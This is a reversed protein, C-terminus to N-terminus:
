FAPEENARLPLTFDYVDVEISCGATGDQKVYAQTKARGAITIKGGKKLFRMAVDSRTGWVACEIWTTEEKGTRVALSFSALQNAGVQKLEPDRGINGQATISLMDTLRPSQIPKKLLWSKLYRIGSV